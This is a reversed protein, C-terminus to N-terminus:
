RHTIAQKPPRAKIKLSINTVDYKRTNNIFLNHHNPHYARILSNGVYSQITPIGTTTHLKTIPTLKTRKNLIICLFKNQIRQMKNIHTKTAVAWIQHGFTIIPKICTECLNLKINTKLKSNRSILLYLRRFAPYALSM